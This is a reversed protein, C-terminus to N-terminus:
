ANIARPGVRRTGRDEPHIHNFCWATDPEVDEAAFGLETWLAESWWVRDAVLDIDWVIDRTARAVHQFREESARLAEEARRRETVDQGIKLFGRVSGDPGRLARTSGEIFVRAGDKRVHWRVNPAIGERRATEIEQAPVGAERDELTFLMAGVRGVAEEASWGYVAAAGPMWDTIRDQPDTTFIAYDRASEVILRLREESARLAEEARKRKTIDRTVTGYGVPRGHEDALAVVSYIVWLAAGTKFHRFRTEIEGRGNRLVRPLFEDRILARDEPFFFELV